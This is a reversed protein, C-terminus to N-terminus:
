WADSQAARLQTVRLLLVEDMVSGPSRPLSTVLHRGEGAVREKWLEVSERRGSVADIRLPPVPPDHGLDLVVHGDCFGRQDHGVVAAHVKSNDKLVCGEVEFLPTELLAVRNHNRTGTPGVLALSLLIHEDDRLLVTPTYLYPQLHEFAVDLV